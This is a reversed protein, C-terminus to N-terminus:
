AREYLSFGIQFVRFRQPFLRNKRSHRCFVAAVAPRSVRVRGPEAWAVRMRRRKRYGQRREPGLGRRVCLARPRPGSRYLLGHREGVAASSEGPADGPRDCGFYQQLKSKAEKTFGMSWPVYPPSRGRWFAVFSKWRTMEGRLEALTREIFTTDVRAENFASHDLIKQHLPITTKVGEIHLEGLARKM